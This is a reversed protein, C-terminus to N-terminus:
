NRCSVKAHTSYICLRRRKHKKKFAIKSNEGPFTSHAPPNISLLIGISFISAGILSVVIIASLILSSKMTAM